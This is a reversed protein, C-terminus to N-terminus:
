ANQTIFLAAGEPPALWAADAAPGGNEMCTTLDGEWTNLLPALAYAQADIPDWKSTDSVGMYQAPLAAIWITYSSRKAGYVTALQARFAIYVVKSVFIAGTWYDGLEAPPTADPILLHELPLPFSSMMAPDLTLGRAVVIGEENCQVFNQM